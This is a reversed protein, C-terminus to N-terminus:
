PECGSGEVSRQPRVRTEYGITWSCPSVLWRATPMAVLPVTMVSVSARDTSRDDGCGDFAVPPRGQDEREM